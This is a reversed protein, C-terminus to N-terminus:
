AKPPPPTIERIFNTNDFMSETPFLFISNVVNFTPVVYLDSFYKLQYIKKASTNSNTDDDKNEPFKDDMDIACEAVLEAVSEMENVATNRDAGPNDYLMYDPIDVSSNLVAIAM